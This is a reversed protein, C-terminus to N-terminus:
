WYGMMIPTVHINVTMLLKTKTKPHKHPGVVREYVIPAIEYDLPAPLEVLM